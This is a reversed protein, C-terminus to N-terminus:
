SEGACTACIYTGTAQPTIVARGDRKLVVTSKVVVDVFTAPELCSVCLRPRKRQCGIKHRQEYNPLSAM